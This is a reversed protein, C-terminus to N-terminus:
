CLADQNTDELSRIASKERFARRQKGNTISSKRDDRIWSMNASIKRSGRTAPQTLLKGVTIRLFFQFPHKGPKRFPILAGGGLAISRNSPPLPLAPAPTCRRSVLVVLHPSKKHWHFIPETSATTTIHTLRGKASAKIKNLNALRVLASTPRALSSVSSSNIHYQRTARITRKRYQPRCQERLSPTISQRYRRGM